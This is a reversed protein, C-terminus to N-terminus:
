EFVCECTVTDSLKELRGQGPYSSMMYYGTGKCKQCDKKTLRKITISNVGFRKRIRQREESNKPDRGIHRIKVDEGEIRSVTEVVLPDAEPPEWGPTSDALIKALKREVFGNSLVESYWQKDILELIAYRIRQAPVLTGNLMMDRDWETVPKDTYVPVINGEPDKAITGPEPLTPTEEGVPANPLKFAKTGPPNALQWKDQFAYTWSEWVAKVDDPAYHPCRLKQTLGM